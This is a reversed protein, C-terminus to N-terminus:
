HKSRKLGDGITLFLLLPNSAFAEFGHHRYFAAAVEDKADVIIAHAGIESIAIRQVADFLIVGGLKRGQFKKDIALRGMRVVPVTPYRPLKKRRMEPLDDLLVSGAALTYFGAINDTEIEVLLYCATVRRRIDQRAQKQLYNNLADVGCDFQSRDHNGMLEVRFKHTM